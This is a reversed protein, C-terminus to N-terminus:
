GLSNLANGKNMLAAALNNALETCGDIIVLYRYVALARESLDAMLYYRAKEYATRGIHGCALAYGEDRWLAIEIDTLEAERLGSSQTLLM